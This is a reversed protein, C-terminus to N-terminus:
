IVMLELVAPVECTSAAASAAKAASAARASSAAWAAAAKPTAQRQGPCSFFSPNIVAIHPGRTMFQNIFGM